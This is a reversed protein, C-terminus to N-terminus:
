WPQEKVRKGLSWGASPSWDAAFYAKPDAGTADKIPRPIAKAIVLLQQTLEVTMALSAFCDLSWLVRGEPNSRRWPEECHRDDVKKNRPKAKAPRQESHQAALCGLPRM